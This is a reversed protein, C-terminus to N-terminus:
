PLNRFRVKNTDISYSINNSSVNAQMNGLACYKKRIGFFIQGSILFVMELKTRHKSADEKPEITQKRGLFGRLVRM